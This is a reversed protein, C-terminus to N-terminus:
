APEDSPVPGAPEEEFGMRYLEAYIGNKAMLEAHNGQEAIRGDQM